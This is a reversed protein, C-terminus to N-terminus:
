KLKEVKILPSCGAIKGDNESCSKGCWGGTEGVENECAELSYYHGIVKGHPDATVGTWHQWPLLYILIAIAIVVVVGSTILRSM